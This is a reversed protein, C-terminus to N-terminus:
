NKWRIKKTLLAATGTTLYYISYIIDLVILSWIEFSEGMRKLAVYLTVMILVLRGALLGGILTLSGSLFLLPLGVLWTLVWSLMFIGLLLRHAFKYKKGAALHRIKQQYFEGVTEKPISLTLADKGLVVATNRGTAHKNVFLDDDGGTLSLMHTFGKTYMFLSKRYAMNRGVGMYPLKLLAFGLYQVATILAEFRIFRNLWGQSKQYPSYGLVFQKDASFNRSYSQLWLPSAPRCDADTLVIWEHLAARIGLTLAYKKGNIHDPTHNVHVMRLRSDKKTEALLWDRTDDNSRDDVVIVEFTSYNQALLQPILEQLNEHEDHACVVVSLPTAESEPIAPKQKRAFAILFVLFYIFQVSVAAFLVIEVYFM